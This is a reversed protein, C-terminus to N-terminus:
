GSAGTCDESGRLVVSIRETRALSPRLAKCCVFSIPCACVNICTCVYASVCLVYICVCACMCMYVQVPVCVCIRYMRTYPFICSYTSNFRELLSPHWQLDPVM